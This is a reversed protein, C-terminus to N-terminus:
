VVAAKQSQVIGALGGDFADLSTRFRHLYNRSCNLSVSPFIERNELDVTAVFARPYGLSVIEKLLIPYVKEQREAELLRSASRLGPADVPQLHLHPTAM